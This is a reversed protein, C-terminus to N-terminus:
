EKVRQLEIPEGVDERPKKKTPKKVNSYKQAMMKGNTFQLDIQNEPSNLWEKMDDSLLYFSLESGYAKTSVAFAGPSNVDNLCMFIKDESNKIVFM